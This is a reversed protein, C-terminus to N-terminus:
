KPRSWRGTLPQIRLRCRSAGAALMAAVAAGTRLPVSLSASLFASLFSMAARKFDLPAEIKHSRGAPFNVKQFSDHFQNSPTLWNFAELSSEVGIRCGPPTVISAHEHNFRESCPRRAAHAHPKLRQARLLGIQRSLQQLGTYYRFM